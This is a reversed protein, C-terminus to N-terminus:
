IFFGWLFSVASGFIAIQALGGWVSKKKSYKQASRWTGVMVWIFFVCYFIFYLIAIFNMGVSMKDLFADALYLPIGMVTTGVIGYGWFSQLLTWEGNWFSRVFGSSNKSTKNEINRENKIKSQKDAGWPKTNVKKQTPNPAGCSPCATAETSVKKKCERCAKLAM